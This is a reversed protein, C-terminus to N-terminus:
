DKIDEELNNYIEEIRRFRNRIGSKSINMTEGLEQLSMDINEIRAKAADRLVASLNNLGIEDDIKQIMRLQKESTSIKKTENAIEWNMNRNIKNRIEKNITTEEFDFFTNLGGIMYIIDMIDESNRMYVLSKSKKDTQFVRKGMEKFLYYLFTAADETDVFFDLAYGKIPARVYGCSFFFGRIIGKIKEESKVVEFNKHSFLKKLFNTFEEKESKRYQIVIEYVNHIGLKKSTLYRIQINLKLIKKLHSYVRKALSTNETSFYVEQETIYAKSIFVGFLEAYIEDIETIEINFLEEKLVSSYSM